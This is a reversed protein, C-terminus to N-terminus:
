GRVGSVTSNRTKKITDKKTNERIFQEVDQLLDTKDDLFPQTELLIKHSIYRDKTYATAIRKQLLEMAKEKSSAKFAKIYKFTKSPCNDSKIIYEYVVVYDSKSVYLDVTKINSDKSPNLRKRYVEIIKNRKETNIKAYIVFTKFGTDVSCWNALKSNNILVYYHASQAYFQYQCFCLFIFCCFTKNLKLKKLKITTM